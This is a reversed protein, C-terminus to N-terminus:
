GQKVKLRPHSLVFPLTGTGACDINTLDLTDLCLYVHNSLWQTIAAPFDAGHLDLKKYLLNSDDTHCCSLDDVFGSM